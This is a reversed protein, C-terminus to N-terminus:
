GGSSESQRERARYRQRQQTKRVDSVYELGRRSRRPKEGLNDPQREVRERFGQRKFSDNHPPLLIEM